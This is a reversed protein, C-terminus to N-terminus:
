GNFSKAWEVLDKMKGNITFIWGAFTIEMEPDALDKDVWYKRIFNEPKLSIIGVKKDNFLVMFHTKPDLPKLTKIDIGRHQCEVNLLERALPISPTINVNHQTANMITNQKRTGM